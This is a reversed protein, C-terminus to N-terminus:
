NNTSVANNLMVDDFISADSLPHNKNIYSDWIKYTLWKSQVFRDLGALRFSNVIFQNQTKPPPKKAWVGGSMM